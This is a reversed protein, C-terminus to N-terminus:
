NVFTDAYKKWSNIMMEIKEWPTGAYIGPIPYLIFRGKPAMKELTERIKREIEAQEAHSLWVDLNIGGMLTKTQGLERKLFDMDEHGQVPDVDRFIDIKMNKYVNVLQTLGESQQQSLLAGAQHCVDAEKDMIPKLYHKLYKVSWFNPGDYYGFRTVIDPKMDLVIELLKLQWQHIIDLFEAVFDPDDAFTMMTKVADTLWLIASGAYLRRVLLITNTRKAQEKAYLSDQHWKELADGSPPNFLYRMKELDEPGKVLFEVSRSPNVDELLGIGDIFDAITGRTNRNIKHWRYMDETERVVQRLTGAPTEYEKCLYPYEGDGREDRWEKVRVDPHYCPDPLWIETMPDTGYSLLFETREFQDKWNAVSPDYLSYSPHVEMSLPTHDVPDGAATALIRERSSMGTKM